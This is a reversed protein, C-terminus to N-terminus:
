LFELKLGALLMLKFLAQKVLDFFAFESFGKFSLLSQQRSDLSPLAVRLQWEDEVVQPALHRERSLNESGFNNWGLPKQNFFM